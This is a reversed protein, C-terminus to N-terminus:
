CRTSGRINWRTSTRKRWTGWDARSIADFLIRDGEHDPWLYGNKPSLFCHSWSSSAVLAVRYPSAALVEAIAAGVDMCRWPHPSPPDGTEGEAPPPQFLHGLGGKAQILNRGYCNIAFPVVPYPFGKRDWDLYLFTNTFAHAM